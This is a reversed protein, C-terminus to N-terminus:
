ARTWSVNEWFPRAVPATPLDTEIEHKAGAGTDSAGPNQAIENVAMEAALPAMVLKTPWLAVVRGSRRCTPGTPRSGDPTLGEARDVRLSAWEAESLDLTPFYEALVKRAAEIQDPLERKVGTEALEGGLYWVAAGDEVPHTTIVFPPKPSNGIAVGFLNPLGKARLLVQHLPRTQAPFEQSLGGSAAIQANGTGAALVVAAPSFELDGVTVRVSESTQELHIPREGACLIQGAVPQALEELLIGIDLVREGLEYASGRFGAAKMGLPLENDALPRSRGALTKSAFFMALRSTLGSASFLVQRPALTPVRALDIPGRGSLAEEWISPMGGITESADNLIGNLAYKLGGHLVGQSAITQGTGLANKEVLVVKCGRAHLTRMLWLGAIGGGIILVDPNAVITRRITEQTM